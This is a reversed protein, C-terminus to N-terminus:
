RLNKSIRWLTIHRARLVATSSAKAINVAHAPRLRLPVIGLAGPAAACCRPGSEKARLVCFSRESM